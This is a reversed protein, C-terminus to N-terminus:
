GLITPLVASTLLIRCALHFEANWHFVFHTVQEAEGDGICESAHTELLMADMFKKECLPCSGEFQVVPPAGGIYLKKKALVPSAKPKQKGPALVRGKIATVVKSKPAPSSLASNSAASMGSGGPQPSGQEEEITEIIASSLLSKGKGLLGRCSPCMKSGKKRLAELCPACTLHGAPCCPMPGEKPTTMCVPCEVLMQLEELVQKSKKSEEVVKKYNVLEEQSITVKGEQVTETINGVEDDQQNAKM